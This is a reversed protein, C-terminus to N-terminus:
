ELECIYSAFMALVSPLFLLVVIPTSKLVRSETISLVALCFILSSVSSKFFVIFCDSRIFM